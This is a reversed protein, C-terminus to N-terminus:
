NMVKTPVILTMLLCQCPLITKQPGLGQPGYIISHKWKIMCDSIAFTCCEEMATNCFVPLSMCCATVVTCSARRLLCSFIGDSHHLTLSTEGVRCPVGFDVLRNNQQLRTWNNDLESSRPGYSLQRVALAHTFQLWVVWNM